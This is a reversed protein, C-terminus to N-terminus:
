EYFTLSVQCAYLLDHLRGASPPTWRAHLSKLFSFPILFVHCGDLVQVRGAFNRSHKYRNM